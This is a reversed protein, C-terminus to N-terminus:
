CASRAGPLSVEGGLPPPRKPPDPREDEEPGATGVRLQAAGVATGTRVDTCVHAAPKVDRDIFERVLMVIESEDESLGEMAEERNM